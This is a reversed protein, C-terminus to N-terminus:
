QCAYHLPTMGDNDKCDTRCTPHQVLYKVMEVKGSRFLSLTSCVCKLKWYKARYLIRQLM